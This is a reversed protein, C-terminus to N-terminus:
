TSRLLVSFSPQDPLKTCSPVLYQQLQEPTTVAPERQGSLRSSLQGPSGMGAPRGLGQEAEPTKPSRLPKVNRQVCAAVSEAHLEIWLHREHRCSRPLKGVSPLSPCVSVKAGALSWPKQPNREGLTSGPPASRTAQSNCANPRRCRHEQCTGQQGQCGCGEGQLVLRTESTSPRRCVLANGRWMCAIQTTPNEHAHCQTICFCRLGGKPDLPIICWSQSSCPAAGQSRLNLILCQDPCHRPKYWPTVVAAM